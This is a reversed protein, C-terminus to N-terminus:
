FGINKNHKQDPSQKTNKMRMVLLMSYGFVMWLPVRDIPPSLLQGLPSAGQLANLWLGTLIHSFVNPMGRWKAYCCLPKPVGPYSYHLNWGTSLWAWSWGVTTLSGDNRKENLTASNRRTVHLFIAKTSQGVVEWSRRNMCDQLQHKVSIWHTSHFQGQAHNSEV